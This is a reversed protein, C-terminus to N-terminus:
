HGIRETRNDCLEDLVLADPEENLSWFVMLVILKLEDVQIPDGPTAMLRELVLELREAPLAGASILFLLFGWSQQGIHSQEAASLLRMSHPPASPPESLGLDRRESPPAHTRPLSRAASKLDELWMLATQVEDDDFGVACLKRQLAPLEPCADSHWYTEYVFSLVDLM